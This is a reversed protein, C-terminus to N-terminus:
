NINLHNKFISSVRQKEEEPVLYYYIDNIRKGTGTIQEQKINNSAVADNKQITKIEHITMNTEINKKLTSLIDNYSWMSDISAGKDLIGQIIQRQRTQRGFDGQPDEYRMRSYKLAEEGNLTINGTPFDAGDYSFAFVNNVSIGDVADVMDKFGDMNVKVYYDIPIDLFEEVTKASMNVGGFAYAHNIKDVKEKGAINVRTDRPISVVKLSHDQGNVSMVMMTDSRGKDGEREDVGLLLVTFGDKNKLSVKQPRKESKELASENLIGNLTQHLSVYASFIFGAVSLLLVLVMILIIKRKKRGM